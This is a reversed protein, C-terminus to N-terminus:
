SLRGALRLRRADATDALTILEAAVTRALDTSMSAVAFEAGDADLLIIHVSQCGCDEACGQAVIRTAAILESM